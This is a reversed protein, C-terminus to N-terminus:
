GFSLLLWIIVIVTSNDLKKIMLIPSSNKMKQHKKNIRILFIKYLFLHLFKYNFNKSLKMKIKAM